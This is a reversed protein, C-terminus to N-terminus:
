QLELKRTAEGIDIFSKSSFLVTEYKKMQAKKKRM